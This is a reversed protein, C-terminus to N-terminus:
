PLLRRSSRAGTASELPKLLEYVKVMVSGIDTEDAM